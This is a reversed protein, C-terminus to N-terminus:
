KILNHRHKPTTDFGASRGIATGSELSAGSSTQLIM